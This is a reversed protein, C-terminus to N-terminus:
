EEREEKKPYWGDCCGYDRDKFNYKHCFGDSESPNVPMTDPRSEFAGCNGCNRGGDVTANGVFVPLEDYHYEAMEKVENDTRGDRPFYTQRNPTQVVGQIEMVQMSPEKYSIASGTIPRTTMEGMANRKRYYGQPEQSM